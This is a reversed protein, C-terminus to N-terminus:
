LEINLNNLQMSVQVHFIEKLTSKSHQLHKMAQPQRAVQSILPSFYIRPLSWSVMHSGTSIISFYLIYQIIMEM